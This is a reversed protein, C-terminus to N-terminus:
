HNSDGRLHVMSPTNPNGLLTLKTASLTRLTGGTEHAQGCHALLLLANKSSRRM